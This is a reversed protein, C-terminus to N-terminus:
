GYKFNIIIKNNCYKLITNITIKSCVLIIKTEMVESIIM